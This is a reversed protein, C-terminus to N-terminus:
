MKYVNDYMYQELQETTFGHYIKLKYAEYLSLGCQRCLELFRYLRTLEMTMMEMESFNM